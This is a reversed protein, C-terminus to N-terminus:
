KKNKRFAKRKRRVLSYGVDYASKRAKKCQTCKRHTPPIPNGCSCEKKKAM